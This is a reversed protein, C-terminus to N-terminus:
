SARPSRIVRRVSQLDELTLPSLETQEAELVQEEMWIDDEMKRRVAEGILEDASAFAGERVRAEVYAELDAPLM